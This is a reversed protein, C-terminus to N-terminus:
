AADTDKVAKAAATMFPDLIVDEEFIEGHDLPEPGFPMGELRLSWPSPNVEFQKHYDMGIIKALKGKLPEYLDPRSTDPNLRVYQGIKFKPKIKTKRPM